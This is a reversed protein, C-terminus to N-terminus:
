LTLEAREREEVGQARIREMAQDYAGEIGQPLSNIAKIVAAPNTKTLLSDLHLVALLFMGQVSQSVMEIVKQKM